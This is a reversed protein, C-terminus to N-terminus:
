ISSKASVLSQIDIERVVGKAFLLTRSPHNEILATNHTSMIVATGKSAIEHFLTVIGDATVPDLNGTPEDALIVAPNNLM